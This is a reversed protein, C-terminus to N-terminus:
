EAYYITEIPKFGYKELKIKPSQDMLTMTYGQILGRKKLEKCVQLYQLFLKGGVTGERYAPEVWWAAERMVPSGAPLWLDNAPMAIFFGAPKGDQEAYLLVGSRSCNFLIQDIHADDYQPNHLYDVPASNAFNIFMKKIKDFDKVDAQRIM